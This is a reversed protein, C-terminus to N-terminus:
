HDNNNSRASPIKPSDGVRSVHGDSMEDTYDSCKSCYYRDVEVDYKDLDGWVRSCNLCKYKIKPQM